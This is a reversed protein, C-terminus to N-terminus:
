TAGRDFTFWTGEPDVAAPKPEDLLECLDLFHQHSASRETLKSAQWIQIFREPTMAIPKSM